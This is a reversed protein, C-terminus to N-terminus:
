VTPSDSPGVARRAERAQRVINRWTTWMAIGLAVGGLGFVLLFVGVGIEGRRFTQFATWAYFLGFVVAAVAIAPLFYVTFRRM